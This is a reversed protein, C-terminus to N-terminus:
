AEAPSLVPPPPLQLDVPVDPQAEGAKDGRQALGPAATLAVVLWGLALVRMAHPALHMCVAYDLTCCAARLLQWCPDKKSM